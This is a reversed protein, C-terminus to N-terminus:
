GSGVHMTAGIADASMSKVTTKVCKEDAPHVTIDNGIDAIIDIVIKLCEERM